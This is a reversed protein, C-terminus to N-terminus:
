LEKRAAKEAKIKSLREELERQKDEYKAAATAKQEEEADNKKMKLMEKYIKMSAKERKKSEKLENLRAELEKEKAEWDELRKHAQEEEEM